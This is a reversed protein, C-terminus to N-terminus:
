YPLNRYYENDDSECSGDCCCEGHSNVLDVIGQKQEADMRRFNILESAMSLFLRFAPRADIIDQEEDVLAQVLEKDVPPNVEEEIKRLFDRLDEDKVQTINELLIAYIPTPISSSEVLFSRISHNM